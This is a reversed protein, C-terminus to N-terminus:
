SSFYNLSSNTSYSDCEKIVISPKNAKMTQKEKQQSTQKLMNLDIRSNSAEPPIHYFSELYPVFFLTAETMVNGKQTLHIQEQNM